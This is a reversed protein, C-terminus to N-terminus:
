LGMERWYEASGDPHDDPSSAALDDMKAKNEVAWRRRQEIESPRFHGTVVSLARSQAPQHTCRSKRHRQM